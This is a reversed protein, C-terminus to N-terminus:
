DQSARVTQLEQLNKLESALGDSCTPSCISPTLDQRAESPLPPIEIPQPALWLTPASSCGTASTVLAFLMLWQSLPKNRQLRVFKRWPLLAGGKKQELRKLRPWQPRPTARESM